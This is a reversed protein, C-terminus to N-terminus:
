IAAAIGPLLPQFRVLGLDQRDFRSGIKTLKVLTQEDEQPGIATVMAGGSSLMDVFQRPMGDFAAWVVIRDFPGEGPLGATGDVQRPLANAIGLAEFRQRALSVLTKYRDLTTVRLALRAMLAATYGTGTGVELVRNNEELALMALIYAQLDVGEITEGCEIPLSRESWVADQWQSPVFSRRPVSELVSILAKGVVGRARLRLLLAAFGERDDTVTSM